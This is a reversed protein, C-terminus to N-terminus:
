KVLGKVKKVIDEPYFPRSDYKLYTYDPTKLTNERIVGRLQATANNEIILTKSSDMVKAVIDGHFPIISAIQLYNVVAKKENLTKLAELIPYKTSGWGIITLKAKKPGYLVPKPVDKLALKLKGLRKDMMRAHNDAGDDFLGLESHEYSSTMVVRNKLGPVARKSIGSDMIKYREYKEGPKGDEDILLGREIKILKDNFKKASKHSESIYKDMVLFVPLQFKEALNFAQMGFYFCDDVDGPALIIRPFEGQSAHMLFRLDGQETWTPLGSSPGGRGSEVIVLPTETIGAMGLAEVMLSFGGGSSCTM